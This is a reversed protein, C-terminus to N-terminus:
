SVPQAVLQTAGAGRSHGSMFVKLPDVKGVFPTSSPGTLTATSTYGSLMTGSIAGTAAQNLALMLAMTGEQFGGASQMGAIYTPSGGGYASFPSRWTSTAPTTSPAYFSFVDEISITIIGYSALHNAM